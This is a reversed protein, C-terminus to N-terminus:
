ETNKVPVGVDPTAGKVTVNVFREVVILPVRVPLAQVNPSPPIDEM